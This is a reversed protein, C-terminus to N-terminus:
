RVAAYRYQLGGGEAPEQAVRRVAGLDALRVLRNTAAAVTKLGFAEQVERATASSRRLLFDHTEALATDAAGLLSVRGGSRTVAALGEWGLMVEINYLPGGDVRDLVVARGKWEGNRTTRLIVRKLLQRAADSTIRVGGFDVVVTEGPGVSEMLTLLKREVPEAQADVMLNGRGGAAERVVFRVERLTTNM